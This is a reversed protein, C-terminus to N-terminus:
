LFTPTQSGKENQFIMAVDYTGTYELYKFFNRVFPKVTVDVHVYPINAGNILDTFQPWVDDWTIDILLIIGSSLKQCVAFM